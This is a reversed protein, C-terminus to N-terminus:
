RVANFFIELHDQVLKYCCLFSLKLKNTSMYGIMREVGDMATLIGLFGTFRKTQLIRKQVLKTTKDGAPVKAELSDYMSRVKNFLQGTQLANKEMRAQKYGPDNLKKSNLVDLLDNHLQIFEATTKCDQDEFGSVGEQNM